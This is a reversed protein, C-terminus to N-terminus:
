KLLGKQKMCELNPLGNNDKPCDNDVFAKFSSGGKGNNPNNQQKIIAEEKREQLAQQLYDFKANISDALINIKQEGLKYNYEDKIARITDNYIKGKEQLEKLRLDYADKIAGVKDLNSKIKYKLVEGIQGLFQALNEDSSKALVPNEAIELLDTTSLSKPDVGNMKAIYYGKTLNGVRGIADEYPMTTFLQNTHQILDENTMSNLPTKALLLPITPLIQLLQKEYLENAQSLRQSTEEYQQRYKDLDQFLGLMQSQAQKLEESYESTLDQAPAVAPATSQAPQPTQQPQAPQPTQQPQAPQPTQQPQAPQPNNNAKEIAYGGVLITGLTSLICAKSGKCKKLGEGIKKILDRKKTAENTTEEAKAVATPEKVEEKPPETHQEQKVEEKPPETHQEQKVEEKPQKYYSFLDKFVEKIKDERFDYRKHLEELTKDIDKYYNYYNRFHKVAAEDSLKIKKSETPIDKQEAKSFNVKYQENPNSAGGKYFINNKNNEPQKIYQGINKITLNPPTSNSGGFLQNIDKNGFKDLVKKKEENTLTIGKYGEVKPMKPNKAKDNEQKAEQKPQKQKYPNNIIDIVSKKDYDYLKDMEKFVKKNDRYRMFLNLFIKSAEENTLKKKEAM